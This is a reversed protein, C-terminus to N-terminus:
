ITQVRKRIEHLNNTTIMVGDLFVVKLCGEKEEEMSVMDHMRLVGNPGDVVRLLGIASKKFGPDTKPDKFIPRDEGNVVGWTAKMAFGHNDRTCYQYTYSGIGLVLNSATFGKKELLRLINEQRELTISDGYILGIHPDLERYGHENVTGGFIDWLIEYAGKREHETCSDDDGCIIEVPSKPSSDPRIVVRGNRALIEKKLAPLFQTVVKWFDFTDSVISVIGNPYLETILRKFTNFEGDFTGMSMVSHETAPVSGGVLERSCDAMYYKELFDIAPVTDTGSFSLLHGAGSIAADSIGGMGRFSFDHGQWQIFDMPSGTRKSHQVFRKWYAHATTASTSAKWLEASMVSELYNVLWFFKPDTNVITLVPVGYPVHSGEPLAKIKIPLYGLDHLAEIHDVPIANKGLSNDMIRKYEDVVSYKDREFFEKNWSDILFEMIFNQLGFWIIYPLGTNSYKPSRPTFNSYVYETGAPYQRRHDAKYFDIALLPNVRYM